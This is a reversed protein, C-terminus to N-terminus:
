DHRTAEEIGLRFRVDKLAHNYGDPEANGNPYPKPMRAVLWAQVADALHEAIGVLNEDTSAERYLPDGYEMGRRLEDQLAEVLGDKEDSM